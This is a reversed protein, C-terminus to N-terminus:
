LEKKEDTEKQDLRRRRRRRDKIIRRKRRRITLITYGIVLILIVIGIIICMPVFDSIYIVHIKHNEQINVFKYSDQFESRSVLRGDVLIGLLVADEKPQYEVTFGTDRYVKAAGDSIKGNTVKTTIEFTPIEKFKVEISHRDQVNEFTYETEHGKIDIAKGDVVISELEYHEDPQYSVTYSKDRYVSKTKHITGNTVKTDIKYKPIKSFEVSISHDENVNTFTYESPYKQIDVEKGDVTVSKVEYNKNPQYTMKYEGGPEVQANSESVTGNQAKAEINYVIPVTASYFRIRRPSAVGTSIIFKGPEVMCIDEAERKEEYDAFDIYYRGLLKGQSISYVQIYNNVGSSLEYSVSIIYDGSVCFDQFTTGTTRKVGEIKSLINFDADTVLFSYGGSRGMQLIYQNTQPNYDVGSFFIEEDLIKITRKYELTDADAVMLSGFNDPNDPNGTAIYLENTNPNFTMGNGHEYDTVRTHRAYSYQPVTYGDEDKDTKYFAILTDPEGKQGNELCVLYKDTACMAQTWGNEDVVSAEHDYEWQIGDFGDPSKLTAAFVNRLPCLLFVIVAIGFFLGLLRGTKNSLIM